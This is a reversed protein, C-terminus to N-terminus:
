RKSKLVIACFFQKVCFADDSRAKVCMQIQKLSLGVGGQGLFKIFQIREFLAIM